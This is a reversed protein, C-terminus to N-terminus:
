MPPTESSRPSNNRIQVLRSLKTLHQEVPDTLAVDGRRVMDALLVGTFIKSVSAIEFGTDAAVPDSRDRHRVGHAAVGRGDPGTVGVVLGTAKRRVRVQDELLHALEVRNRRTM